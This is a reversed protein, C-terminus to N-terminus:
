RAYRVGSYEVHDTCDSDPKGMITIRAMEAFDRIIDYRGLHRGINGSLKIFEKKCEEYTM